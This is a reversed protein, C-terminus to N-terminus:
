DTVILYPLTEFRADVWAFLSEGESIGVRMVEGIGLPHGGTFSPESEGCALFCFDFEGNISVSAPSSTPGDLLKVWAKNSAQIQITSM